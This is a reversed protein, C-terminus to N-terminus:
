RPFVMPTTLIAATFERATKLDSVSGQITVDVSKNVVLGGDVSVTGFSTELRPLSFKVDSKRDWSFHCPGRFAYM